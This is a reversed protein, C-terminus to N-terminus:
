ASKGTGLTEGARESGQEGLPEGKPGTRPIRLKALTKLTDPNVWPFGMVVPKAMGEEEERQYHPFGQKAFHVVTRKGM